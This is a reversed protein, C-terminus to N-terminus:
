EEIEKATGEIVTAHEGADLRRLLEEVGESAQVELEKPILKHFLHVFEGYNKDAWDNLREQGGTHEFAIDFAQRRYRAMSAYLSGDPGGMVTPFQPKSVDSERAKSRTRIILAKRRLPASWTRPPLAFSHRIM